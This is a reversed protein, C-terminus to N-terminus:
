GGTTKKKRPECPKNNRIDICKPKEKPPNAHYSVENGDPSIGVNQFWHAKFGSWVQKGNIDVMSIQYHPAEDDGGEGGDGQVIVIRDCTASFGVDGVANPLSWRINGDENYFDLQGGRTILAVFRGDQSAVLRGYKQYDGVPVVLANGRFRVVNIQQGEIQIAAHGRGALLLAGAFLIKKMLETRSVYLTKAATRLM